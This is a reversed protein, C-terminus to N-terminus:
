PAAGHRSKAGVHGAQATTAAQETGAPVPDGRGVAGPVALADLWALFSPDMEDAPVMFTRHRTRSGQVQTTTIVHYLDADVLRTPDTVLRKGFVRNGMVSVAISDRLLAFRESALACAETVTGGRDDDFTWYAEFVGEVDSLNGNCPSGGQQHGYDIMKYNAMAAVHAHVLAWPLGNPLCLQM